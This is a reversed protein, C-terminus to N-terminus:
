DKTSKKIELKSNLGSIRIKLSGNGWRLSEGDTKRLDEFGDAIVDGDLSDMEVSFGEIEESLYLLVDGDVQDFDLDTAMDLYMTVDADVCDFVGRRIGGRFFVGADVSDVEMDGVDGSVTLTGEVADLTLEDANGTYTVDGSFVAIEVDGMAELMSAPIAVTLDKHLSTVSGFLTSKRFQVTLKGDYVRWRLRCDTDEGGYDETVTIVGDESPIVTVNGTVWQIELDTINEEVTANGVNYEHADEYVFGGFSLVDFGGISVIHFGNGALGATLLSGLLCFVLSWVVIGVVAAPRVPRKKTTHKESM